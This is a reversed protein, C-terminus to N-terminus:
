LKKDFHDEFNVSSFSYFFDMLFLLFDKAKIIYKPQHLKITDIILPLHIDASSKNFPCLSLEVLGSGLILFFYASTNSFNVAYLVANKPKQEKQNTSGLSHSKLFHCDSGVWIM